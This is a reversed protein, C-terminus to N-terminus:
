TANADHSRSDSPSGTTPLVAPMPPTYRQQHNQHTTRQEFGSTPVLCCTCHERLWGLLTEAGKSGPREFADEYPYDDAFERSPHRVAPQRAVNFAECAEKFTSPHFPVWGWRDVADPSWSRPRKEAIGTADHSSPAYLIGLNKKSDDSLQSQISQGSATKRMGPSRSRSHEQLVVGLDVEALNM